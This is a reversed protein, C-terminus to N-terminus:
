LVDLGTYFLDFTIQLDLTLFALTGLDSYIECDLGRGIWQDFINTM